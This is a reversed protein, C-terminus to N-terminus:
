KKSSTCTVDTLGDGSKEHSVLTNGKLTFEEGFSGDFMKESASGYVLYQRATLTTKDSNWYAVNTKVFPFRKQKVKRLVRVKQQLAGLIITWLLLSTIRM